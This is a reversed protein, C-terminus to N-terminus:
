KESNQILKKVVPVDGYPLYLYKWQEHASFWHGQPCTLPGEKSPYTVSKLKPRKRNWIEERDPLRNFLDFWFAMLEGEYPDDLFCPHGCPNESQYNDPTPRANVDKIVSVTRIKGQGEYFIIPASRSMMDLYDTYARHLKQAQPSKDQELVHNLAYISFLLQGNDLGPTRKVWPTDPVFGTDNVIVWPIQGGFGPTRANFANYSRIKNTLINFITQKTTQWAFRDMCQTYSMSSPCSSSHFFIRARRNGNLAMAIMNLHLSEKSSATWFHLADLAGTDYNIRRGDYTMGSHENIGVSHSHFKGEWFAALDLFRDREIPRLLSTANFSRAWRCHQGLSIVVLCVLLIVFKM